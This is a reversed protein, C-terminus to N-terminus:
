KVGELSQLVTSNPPTKWAGEPLSDSMEAHAASATFRGKDAESEWISFYMFQTPDEKAQFYEYRIM